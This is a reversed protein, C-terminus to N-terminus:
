RRQKVVRNTLEEIYPVLVEVRRRKSAVPDDSATVDALLTGLCRELITVDVLERPLPNRVGLPEFTRDIDEVWATVRAKLTRLSEYSEPIMLVDCWITAFAVDYGLPRQGVHRFNIVYSLEDPSEWNSFLQAASLHHHGWENPVEEVAKCVAAIGENVARSTRGFEPWPKESLLARACELYAAAQWKHFRSRYFAAPLQQRGGLHRPLTQAEEHDPLWDSRLGQRYCRFRALYELREEPTLPTRYSRPRLATYTPPIREQVYWGKHLSLHRHRMLRPTRIVNPYGSCLWGFLRQAGAEECPRPDDYAKFVAPQGECEGLVTISRPRDKTYFYGRDIVKTMKFRVDNRAMVKRAWRELHDM